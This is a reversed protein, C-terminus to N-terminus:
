EDSGKIIGIKEYEVESIKYNDISTMATLYKGNVKVAYVYNLKITELSDGSYDTVSIKIRNENNLLAKRVTDGYVLKASAKEGLLNVDCEVNVNLIIKDDLYKGLSEIEVVNTVRGLEQVTGTSANDATKVFNFGSVLILLMSFIMTAFTIISILADKM